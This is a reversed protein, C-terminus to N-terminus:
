EEEVENLEARTWPGMMQRHFYTSKRLISDLRAKAPIRRYKRGYHNIQNSLYERAENTSFGDLGGEWLLDIWIQEFKNIKTLRPPRRQSM